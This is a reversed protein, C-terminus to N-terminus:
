RNLIAPQEYCISEISSSALRFPIAIHVETGSGNRKRITFEYDGPYMRCLRERTSSLGVGNTGKFSAGTWGVGNDQVTVLLRDGKRSTRMAIRGDQSVGRLGHIVANEVLPQLLFSPMLAQNTEPAIESQITLRDGFRMKEVALYDQTLAIEEQVTTESPVDRRLAVRLLDGLRTLMKSALKPNQQTLVSINQLTNFLFHPNLRMRLAELEAQRLSTELQSKELAWQAAQRTRQQFGRVGYSTGLTLWFFFQAFVYESAPVPWLLRALSVPRGLALGVAFHIFNIVELAFFSTVMSAFVLASATRKWESRRLPFQEGLRCIAPTLLVWPVFCLLWDVFDRSCKISFGAQRVELYHRTYSLVAVFTWLLTVGAMFTINRRFRSTNQTMGVPVVGLWL